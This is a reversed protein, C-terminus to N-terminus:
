ATRDHLLRSILPSYATCHSHLDCFTALNGTDHSSSLDGGRDVAYLAHSFHVGFPHQYQFQRVSQQQRTPPDTTFPTHFARPFLSARARGPSRQWVGTLSETILPPEGSPISSLPGCNAHVSAEPAEASRGEQVQPIGNALAMRLQRLQPCPPHRAPPFVFPTKVHKPETQL